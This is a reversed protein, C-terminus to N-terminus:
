FPNFKEANKNYPLYQSYKLDELISKGYVVPVVIDHGEKELQHAAALRHHGNGLKVGNSGMLVIPSQVGHKKINDYLSEDVNEYRGSDQAERLKYKQLGSGEFQSGSVGGPDDAFGSVKSLLESPKMFLQLQNPNDGPKRGFQGSLNRYASM